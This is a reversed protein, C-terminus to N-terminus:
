KAGGKAAAQFSQNWTERGIHDFVVDAGIRGTAAMVREPVNERAHNLVEDAGLGKAKVLKADTGATAIVRAGALKAIQIAASGIGSGAGWVLVTEGARLGAKKFLMHYATLFVLPFAAAQEFPMSSPIPLLFVARISVREAYGGDTHAGLLRYEPCLNDKGSDCFRCHGCSLGPSAIVRDGPRLNSVHAGVKEVVGAVDCGLIHPLPIAYSPIGQLLWIDLHNVSAAKVAVVADDPGCPPDPRDQYILKDPGGHEYFVVAKM